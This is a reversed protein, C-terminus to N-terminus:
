AHTPVPRSAGKKGWYIPQNVALSVNAYFNDTADLLRQDADSRMRAGTRTLERSVPEAKVTLTAVGNAQEKRIAQDIIGTFWRKMALLAQTQIDFFGVYVTVPRQHYAETETM